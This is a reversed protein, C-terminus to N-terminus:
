LDRSEAIKEDVKDPAAEQQERDRSIDRALASAVALLSSQLLLWLNPGGLDHQLPAKEAVLLARDDPEAIKGRIEEAILGADLRDADGVRASM